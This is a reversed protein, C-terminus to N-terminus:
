ASAGGQAITTVSSLPVQTGDITLMPGTSSQEVSKVLGTASKGDESTYTVERGLLAASGFAMQAGLLSQMQKAVDQMAELASFQATQAMLQASDTPNSPDQYKLQAVLLSLFTKKNEAAKAPDVTSSSNLAESPFLSGTADAANVTM